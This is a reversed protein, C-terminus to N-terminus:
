YIEWVNGHVLYTNHLMQPSYNPNEEAKLLSYCPEIHDM